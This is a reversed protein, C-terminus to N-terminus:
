SHARRQQYLQYGTGILMPTLYCIGTSWWDQQFPLLPYVLLFISSWSLAVGLLSFRRIAPDVYALLLPLLTYGLLSPFLAIQLVAAGAWYQRFGLLLLAVPIWQWLMKPGIASHYRAVAAVWAGVWNPELLFTPLFVALMCVVIPLWAGARLALFALVVAAVLTAQPKAGITLAVIAGLIWWRRQQWAWIGILLLGVLMVTVQQLIFGLPLPLFFLLFLPMRLLLLGVLASGVGLMGWVPGIMWEPLVILPLALWMVPLPYAFGGSAFPEDYHEAFRAQMVEGYASDGALELQLAWLPPQYDRGGVLLSIGMLAAGVLMAMLWRERTTLPKNPMGRTYMLKTIGSRENRDMLWIGYTWGSTAPFYYKGMISYASCSVYQKCETELRPLM